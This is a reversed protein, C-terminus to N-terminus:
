KAVKQTVNFEIEVRRNKARGDKTKNDAIPQSEGMGKISIKDAPVGKSVMYDKVAQARRESLKQNYADTGISDTHGIAIVSNLNVDGLKQIESDIRTKGAPKLTAKDFDFYADAELTVKSVQPQPAPAPAPAPAPKVPAPAPAAKKPLLDPDCEAVALAATFYSTRICEGSGDKVIKGQADVVYGSLAENKNTTHAVAATSVSGVAVALLVQTLTSMKKM